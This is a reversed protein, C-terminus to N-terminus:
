ELEKNYFITELPWGHTERRLEKYGNKIYFKQAAVQRVTTDLQITKYGLRKAQKELVEYIQQGFGRRQFKPHVRMRKLEVVTDSIKKLAGMAVIKNDLLGVLFEGGNNIYVSKIDKLDKDWKGSKSFADSAKLALVHLKRVQAKDPPRYRRIIM